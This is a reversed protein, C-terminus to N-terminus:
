SATTASTPRPCPCRACRRRWGCSRRGRYTAVDALLRQQLIVTLAHLAMGLASRPSAPLACAYGAHLVYVTTAGAEVAVSIPTNNAVAGDMLDGDAIRVPPFVGPLAVSAMVADIVPGDSLVVENGTSVEAAVV